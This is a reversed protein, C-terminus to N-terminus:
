GRMLAEAGIMRAEAEFGSRRLASIVHYLQAPPITSWDRGQLGASCILAVAAPANAAVARNLTQSWLTTRGIPVELSEAMSSIDGDSLRGLGALAAFLLKARGSGEGSVIGQYSRIDGTGYGSLPKTGGVALLARARLGADGSAANAASAWRDAYTDLGASLMSAILMDIDGDVGAGPRIMAATRATVLLRAYRALPDLKEDSWLQRMADVRAEPTAGIYAARLITSPKGVQESANTEDAVAGYHDVLAASSLVGLAAAVDAGRARQTASLLPVASQWAAVRPGVTAMLRPPIDLATASALGFRWATLQPVDDWQVNVARRTNGGAGIVKEALLADIGRKNTRSQAIDILSAAQASEGSLGACMARTMLWAPQKTKTALAAEVMPCTGAPDATALSAQMAVDFMKPTYQEVDVAQVLQRASTAEGMRLLLWAREAAFDAGNVGRPTDAESLLARRLVISAWRSAIPADIRRMVKSLFKGDLAGYAAAGMGGNDPGLIGVTGTSRRLHPPLDQPLAVLTGLEGDEVPTGEVLDGATPTVSGSAPQVPVKLAVDPVLDTPQATEPKDGGKTVKPPADPEGFGPPLISEPADQGLAPIAVLLAVGALLAKVRPKNQFRM